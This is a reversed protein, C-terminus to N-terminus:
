WGGAGDRAKTNKKEKKRRNKATRSVKQEASNFDAELAAEVELPLSSSLM